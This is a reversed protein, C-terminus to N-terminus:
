CSYSISVLYESRRGRRRGSPWLSTRCYSWWRRPPCWGRDLPLWILILPVSQRGHQRLELTLKSRSVLSHNGPGSLLRQSSLSDRHAGVFWSGHQHSTNELLRVGFSYKIISTFGMASRQLWDSEGRMKCVGMSHTFRSKPWQVDQNACEM